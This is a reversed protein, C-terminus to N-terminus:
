IFIIKGNCIIFFRISSFWILSNKYNFKVRIVIFLMGGLFFDIFIFIFGFIYILM